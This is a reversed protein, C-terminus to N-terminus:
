NYNIKESIVEEENYAAIIVSVKPCNKLNHFKFPLTKNKSKIIIFLPFLVYNYIVLVISIWLVSKLLIM